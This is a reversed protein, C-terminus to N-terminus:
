VDAAACPLGWWQSLDACLSGSIGPWRQVCKSCRLLLRHSHIIKLGIRLPITVNRHLAMLSDKLGRQATNQARICVPPPALPRCTLLSAGLGASTPIGDVAQVVDVIVGLM